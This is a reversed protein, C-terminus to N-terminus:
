VKQILRNQDNVIKLALPILEGGAILLINHQVIDQRLWNQFSVADDFCKITDYGLFQM